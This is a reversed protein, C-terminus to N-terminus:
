EIAPTTEVVKGGTNDNGCPIQTQRARPVRTAAIRVVADTTFRTFHVWHKSDHPCRIRVPKPPNEAARQFFPFDQHIKL